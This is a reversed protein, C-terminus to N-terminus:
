IKLGTRTVGRKSVLPNNPPGGKLSGPHQFQAMAPARSPIVSALTRGVTVRAPAGGDSTMKGLGKKDEHAFTFRGMDTLKAPLMGTVGPIHDGPAYLQRPARPPAPTSKRGFGLMGGGPIHDGPAYAARSPATKKVPAPAPEYLKHSTVRSMDIKPVAM